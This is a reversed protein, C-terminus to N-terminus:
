EVSSIGSIPLLLETHQNQLFIRDTSRSKEKQIKRAMKFINLEAADNKSNELMFDVHNRINRDMAQVVLM